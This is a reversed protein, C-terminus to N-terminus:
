VTVLDGHLKYGDLNHWTLAPAPAPAPPLFYIRCSSARYFDSLHLDFRIVIRELTQNILMEFGDHAQPMYLGCSGLGEVRLM